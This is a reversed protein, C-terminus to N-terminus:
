IQLCVRLGLQLYITRILNVIEENNQKRFVQFNSMCQFIFINVNSTALICIM